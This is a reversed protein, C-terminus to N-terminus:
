FLARDFTSPTRYSEGLVRDTPQACPKQVGCDAPQIARLAPEAGGAPAIADIIATFAAAHGRANAHIRDAAYIDPDAALPHRHRRRPPRRSRCHDLGHDRRARRVPHGQSRRARGACPRLPTMEDRLATPEYPSFADNGGAAAFVVDPRFELAPELQQVRIEDVTLHPVALNVAAFHPRTAAPALRLRGAFSADWYGPRPTRIGATVSDGLVPGRGGVRVHELRSPPVRDEDPM